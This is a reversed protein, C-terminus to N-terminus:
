QIHVIEAKCASPWGYEHANRDLCKECEAVDPDQGGFALDCTTALAATGASPGRAAREARPQVSANPPLAAM